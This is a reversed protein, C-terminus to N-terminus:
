RYIFLPRVAPRGEKQAQNYLVNYYSYNSFYPHRMATMSGVSWWGGVVQAQESQNLVIADKESLAGNSAVSLLDNENIEAAVASGALLMAAATGILLKKTM